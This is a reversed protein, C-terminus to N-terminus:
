RLLTSMSTSFKSISFHAIKADDGGPVFEVWFKKSINKITSM